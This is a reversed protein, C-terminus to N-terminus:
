KCSAAMAKLEKQRKPTKPAIVDDAICSVLSKVLTTLKLHTHAKLTEFDHDQLDNVKLSLRKQPIELDPKHPELRARWKGFVGEISRTLELDNAYLNAYYMLLPKRFSTGLGPAIIQCAADLADLYPAFLKVELPKLAKERAAQIQPTSQPPTAVVNECIDCVGVLVNEVLGHGDSFPVDRYRYTISEVAKCNFCVAREQDGPVLLKM